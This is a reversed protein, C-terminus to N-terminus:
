DNIEAQNIRTQDNSFRTPPVCAKHPEMAEAKQGLFNKGRSQRICHASFTKKMRNYSVIPRFLKKRAITHYLPEECEKRCGIPPPEPSGSEALLAAVDERRYYCKHEIRVFPLAATDRYYQLTRRSVGLIRCVAEGPLLETPEARSGFLESMRECLGEIRCKLAEWASSEIIVYDM